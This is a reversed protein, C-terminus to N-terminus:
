VGRIRDYNGQLIIKDLLAKLVSYYNLLNKTNLLIQGSM